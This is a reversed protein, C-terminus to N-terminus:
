DLTDRLVFHLFNASHTQCHRQANGNAVSALAWCCAFFVGFGAVFLEAPPGLVAAVSPALGSM